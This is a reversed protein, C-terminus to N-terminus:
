SFNDLHLSIADEHLRLSAKTGWTSVVGIDLDWRVLEIRSDLYWRLGVNFTVNGRLIDDVIIEKRPNISQEWEVSITILEDIIFDILIWSVVIEAGLSQELVTENQLKDSGNKSIILGSFCNVILVSLEISDLGVFVANEEILTFLSIVSEFPAICVESNDTKETAPSEYWISRVTQQWSQNRASKNWSSPGLLFVEGPVSLEQWMGLLNHKVFREEKTWDVLVYYIDLVQLSDASIVNGVFENPGAVDKVVIHNETVHFRFLEEDKIFLSDPVFCGELM